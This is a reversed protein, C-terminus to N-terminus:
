LILYKYIFLNFYIDGTRLGNLLLNEDRIM